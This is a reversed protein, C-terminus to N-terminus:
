VEKRNYFHRIVEHEQVGKLRLLALTATLRDQVCEMENKTTEILRFRSGRQYRVISRALNDQENMLEVADSLLKKVDASM